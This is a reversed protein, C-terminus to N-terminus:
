RRKPPRVTIVVLMAAMLAFGLWDAGTFATGLLASSLICATAPEAVGVLSGRVSGILSTGWLYLGFAVFTGLVGAGGLLVLWSFATLSPLAFTAQAGVLLSGAEALSAVLASVCMGCGVVLISPFRAYLREPAVLYLTVALANVIGWALGEAPISLSDLSGKTAILWTALLALAIAAAEGPEPTRRSHLCAFALVFVSALMQLVTATGANTIGTSAAYTSQSGFVGIGFMCVLCISGPSALLARLQARYRALIVAAFLLSAVAARICTIPLPGLGAASQLYQICVGSFGWLCAGAFAAVLGLM